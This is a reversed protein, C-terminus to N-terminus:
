FFFFVTKNVKEHRGSWHLERTQTHREPVYTTWWASKFATVTKGSLRCVQQFTLASPVSLCPLRVGLCAWVYANHYSVKSTSTHQFSSWPCKVIATIIKPNTANSTIRPCTKIRTNQRERDTDDWMGDISWVWENIQWQSWIFKAVPLTITYFTHTKGEQLSM